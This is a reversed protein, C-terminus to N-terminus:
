NKTHWDRAGADLKLEIATENVAYMQLSARPSVHYLTSSRLILSVSWWLEKGHLAVYCLQSLEKIGTLISPVM